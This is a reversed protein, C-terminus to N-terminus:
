PKVGEHLSLQFVCRLPAWKERPAADPLARQFTAM